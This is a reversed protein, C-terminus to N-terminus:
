ARRGGLADLVRLKDEDSMARWATIEDLTRLCGQCFRRHVDLRCVGICPSGIPREERAAEIAHELADNDPATRQETM